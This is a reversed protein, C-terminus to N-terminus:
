FCDYSTLIESNLSNHAADGTMVYEFMFTKKVPSFYYYHTDGSAELYMIRHLTCGNVNLDIASLLDGPVMSNILDIAQQITSEPYYNFRFIWDTATPPATFTTLGTGSEYGCPYDASFGFENNSYTGRQCPDAVLVCDDSCNYGTAENDQGDCDEAGDNNPGGNGTENQEQWIGDGCYTGITGAPRRIVNTVEIWLDCGYDDEAEIAPCTDPWDLGVFGEVPPVKLDITWEDAIDNQARTLRGVAYERGNKDVCKDGQYYSPVGIDNSDEPDADTKSLFPCLSPYCCYSDNPQQICYKRAVEITPIHADCLETKPWIPKPMQLIQYDIAELEPAAMFSDSLQITFNKELYEQPIVTGFELENSTVELGNEIHATVNIVHAEFAAFLPVSIIIAFMALIITLIKKM